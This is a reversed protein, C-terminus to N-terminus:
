QTLVEKVNVEEEEEEEEEESKRILDIAQETKLIGRTEKTM